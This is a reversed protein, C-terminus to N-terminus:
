ARADGTVRGHHDNWLDTLEARAANEATEARKQAAAADAVEIVALIKNAGGGGLNVPFIRESENFVEAAAGVVKMLLQSGAYLDATRRAAAIFEQVPGIAIAILYRTM